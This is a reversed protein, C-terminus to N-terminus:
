WPPAFAASLAELASTGNIAAAGVVVRRMRKAFERTAWKVADTGALAQGLLHEFAARDSPTLQATVAAGYSALPRVPPIMNEVTSCDAGPLCHPYVPAAQLACSELLLLLTASFWFLRMSCPSAGARRLSKM